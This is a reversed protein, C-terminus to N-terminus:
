NGSYWLHTELRSSDAFGAQRVASAYLELQMQYIAENGGREGLKYDIIFGQGHRDVYFLDMKGSLFIPGQNFKNIDLKLWFEWEREIQREQALTEAAQQGFISNQFSIAKSALFDLEDATPTLGLKQAQQNLLDLYDGQSQNFDTVEMVAHFLTGRDAPSTPGLPGVPRGGHVVSTPDDDFESDPKSLYNFLKCYGTVSMSLVKNRSLPRVLAPEFSSPSTDTLASQSGGAKDATEEPISVLKFESAKPEHAQDTTPIPVVSELISGYQDFDVWASLPWLWSGNENKSKSALGVVVLHDRARTAAVYFLRKAEQASRIKEQDKFELFTPPELKYRYKYSRYSLAVQGDDSIYLGDSRPSPASDCEPIIVVPFELGKSRHVTMINVSGELPDDESVDTEEEGKEFGEKLLNELRDAGGFAQHPDNVPLAKVMAIFNQVERVREPSGGQGAVILPLIHREEVLAEIIEGPPRRSVFPKLSCFLDRLENLTRLDDSPLNEPWPNLRDSFYWSLSQRTNNPAEPWTLTTLTSEAVPGLPSLLAMALNLDLERESLFLYAGVLGSIERAIFIDRGKLTHCDIGAETLKEQYVTANRKFRLLIAVDGARPLRPVPEEGGKPKDAVMVGARGSFLDTLYSTVLDAQIQANLTRARSGEPNVAKLWVLPPSQYLSPRAKQQPQFNKQDLYSPFYANFFDILRSQTRYNTSLSLVEGGGQGLVEALRNMIEPESGRFRYISQKPDGVVKLKPEVQGWSLTDWDLAPGNQDGILQALLDAQLRNTDQFEDVMILRWRGAEEARVRQHSRLLDRALALIDDFSLLGNSLRRRRVKGALLNVLRVLAETVPAVEIETQYDNLEKFISKLGNFHVQGEKTRPNQLNGFLRRLSRVFIPLKHASVPDPDSLLLNLSFISQKFSGYLESNFKPGEVFLSAKEALHRCQELWMSINFGATTSGASKLSELGWASLRRLCINLWAKISASNYSTKFAIEELLAALDSNRDDLLDDVAQNFQEPGDTSDVNLGAPLGLLHSHSKVLGLAYGHITSIQAQGLRRMEREWVSRPAPAIGTSTNKLREGIASAVRARLEAAAKESFTMALISTLSNRQPDAEIFRVLYEVLTGTKGSGAGAVVCLTSRNELVKIQDDNYKAM